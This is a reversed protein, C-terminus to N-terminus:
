AHGGGFPKSRGEQDIAGASLLSRRSRAAYKILSTTYGAPKGRKAIRLSAYGVVLVLLNMAIAGRNFTLLLWFVSALCLADIPELGLWEQSKALHRHVKARGM